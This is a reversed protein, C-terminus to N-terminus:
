GQGRRGTLWGHEEATRLAVTLFQTVVPPPTDGLWLLSWDYHSTPTLPVAVLMGDTRSVAARICGPVIGLATSGPQMGTADHLTAPQISSIRPSFGATRCLHTVYQRFEPAENDADLIFLEDRLDRLEISARGALPHDAAMVVVVPDLRILQSRLTPPALAARCVAVDLRGDALRRLQEVSSLQRRHVRVQPHTRTFEGILIDHLDFAADVLGIRLDEGVLGDRAARVQEVTLSSDALLKRARPLLIRGAETLMVAPRTRVLLQVGLREELARVHYSVTPQTMFMQKAALGFHRTEAVVVFVQLQHLDLEPGM